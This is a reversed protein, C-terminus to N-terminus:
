LANLLGELTAILLAIDQPRSLRHDGDKVLTVQVDDSHLRGAITLAINWPVDDDRQGHILRVPADIAIPAELLLAKQGSAWFRATTLMPEGYPSPETAARSRPRKHM